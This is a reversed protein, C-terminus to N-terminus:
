SNTHPYYSFPRPSYKHTEPYSGSSPEQSSRPLLGKHEMFPLFKKVLQTVILKGLLVSSQPTLSLRHPMASFVTSEKHSKSAAHLMFPSTQRGLTLYSSKSLDMLLSTHNYKLTLAQKM